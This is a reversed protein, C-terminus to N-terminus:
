GVAHAVQAKIQNASFCFFTCSRETKTAISPAHVPELSVCFALMSQENYTSISEKTKSMLYPSGKDRGFLLYDM